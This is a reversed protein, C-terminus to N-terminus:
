QHIYQPKFKERSQFSLSTEFNELWLFIQVVVDIGDM